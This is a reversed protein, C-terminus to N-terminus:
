RPPRRAASQRRRRAALQAQRRKRRKRRIIQARLILIGLGLAALLILILIVLLVTGIVRSPSAGPNSAADQSPSAPTPTVVAPVEAAVIMPSQRICTGGYYVGFTGVQTDAALPATLSQDPLTYAASLLSSDYDYPLLAQVAAPLILTADKEGDTVPVTTISSWEQLIDTLTLEDFGYDFLESATAFSNFVPNGYEDTASAGLVVALYSLTEDEAVCIVCRGAPTTFGTKGGVVRYDYYGSLEEESILYNTTTLTRADQQSTAPLEYSPTSYIEQFVQHELAAEMIKALDRATTYHNDDHFGHPNAFHTGTCGLEAARDNMMQVFGEQSGGIYDAIVLAADNASAVMLCYLLQELTYTEGAMLGASSGDPDMTSLADETISIQATLDGRELALLCTMVKTLSAPERRQDINKAYAVTGTNRELLLLAEGDLDLADAPTLSGDADLGCASASTSMAQSITGLIGTPSEPVTLAEEQLPAQIETSDAAAATLPQALLLLALMLASFRHKKM